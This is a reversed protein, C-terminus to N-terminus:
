KVNKVNFSKLRGVNILFQSNHCIVHWEQNTTFDMSKRM